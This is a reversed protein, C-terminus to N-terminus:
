ASSRHLSECGKQRGVQLLASDPESLPLEGDWRDSLDARDTRNPMSRTALTKGLLEYMLCIPGM